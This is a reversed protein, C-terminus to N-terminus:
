CEIIILWKFKLSKSITKKVEGSRNVGWTGKVWDALRRRKTFSDSFLLYQWPGCHPMRSMACQPALTTDRHFHSMKSWNTLPATVTPSLPPFAPWHCLAPSCFKAFAICPRVTDSSFTFTILFILSKYAKCQVSIAINTQVKSPDLFKWFLIKPPNKAPKWDKKQKSFLSQSLFCQPSCDSSLLCHPPPYNWGNAPEYLVCICIFLYMYVFSFICICICPHFYLFTTVSIYLYLTLHRSIGDM